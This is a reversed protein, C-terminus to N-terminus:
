KGSAAVSVADIPMLLSADIPQGTHQQYASLAAQIIQQLAQAIALDSQVSGSTLRTATTLAIQLIALINQLTSM